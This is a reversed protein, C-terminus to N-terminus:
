PASLGSWPTAPVPSDAWSGPAAVRDAPLGRMAAVFARLSQAAGEAREAFCATLAREEVPELPRQAFRRLIRNMRYYIGAMSGYDEWFRDASVRELFTRFGGAEVRPHLRTFAELLPRGGDLAVTFGDLLGPEERLLLHDLFLETLVHAPLFRKLGPTRSAERLRSQLAAANELFLPARHFRVDVAHHFEIGEIVNHVEAPPAAEKRWLRVLPLPRVKRGYLTLLDPLVAGLRVSPAANAACAFHGILNM